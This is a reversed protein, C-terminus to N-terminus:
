WLVIGQIVPPFSGCHACFVLGPLSRMSHQHGNPTSCRLGFIFGLLGRMAVEIFRPDPGQASAGDGFGVPGFVCGEASVVPWVVKLSAEPPPAFTLPHSRLASVFFTDHVNEAAAALLSPPIGFHDRWARTTDCVWYFHHGPAGVAVQWCASCVALSHLAGDLIAKLMAQHQGTWRKSDETKVLLARSTSM